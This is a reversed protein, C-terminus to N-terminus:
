LGYNEAVRKAQKERGKAWAVSDISTLFKGMKISAPASVDKHSIGGCKCITLSMSADLYEETTDGCLECTFDNLLRM